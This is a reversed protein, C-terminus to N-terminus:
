DRKISVRSVQYNELFLAGSVNATGKLIFNEPLADLNFVSLTTEDAQDLDIKFELTGQGGILSIIDTGEFYLHNEDLLITTSVRANEVKLGIEGRNIPLSGVVSPKLPVKLYSRFIDDGNTAIGFSIPDTHIETVGSSVEMAGVNSLLAASFNSPNKANWRLYGSAELFQKSPLTDIDLNVKNTSLYQNLEPAYHSSFAEWNMASAWFDVSLAQDALYYQLRAHSVFSEGRLEVSLITQTESGNALEAYIQFAYTRSSDVIELDEIELKLSYFPQAELGEAGEMLTEILQKRFVALTQNMLPLQRTSESQPATISMQDVRVTLELAHKYNILGLLPASLTVNSVEISSDSYSDIRVEVGTAPTYRLSAVEITGERATLKHNLYLETLYAAQWVIVGIAIVVVLLSYAFYRILRRVLM